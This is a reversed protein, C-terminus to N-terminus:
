GGSYGGIIPLVEGTIYSACSPAALFVYAPAIEEPQAPRGMPTDAGFNAVRDASKDAPNLPTWVPGPAVANVRIGRDVLHTALSRTFAHIGGKTMSYDLLDKNGLLGTVSGTMIIASGNKMHPVAAKAMYFYGYLNTKLTRDFHEETLEEFSNVHEQFAANNVLIDLGGLEKMTREVAHKCFEPDAVDGSILICRRGEKEVARKTEKADEHEDLYAVAVDAGERAFLVAVARGIGSDGGTILAIKDLLKESGKYYPADFMPKLELDAELGPKKLHQGPLPPEPYARAGSQMASKKTKGEKGDRDSRDIQKQITREQRAAQAAEEKFDSIQSSRAM